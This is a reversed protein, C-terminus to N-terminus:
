IYQYGIIAPKAAQPPPGGRLAAPGRGGDYYWSICLYNHRIFTIRARAFVFSLAYEREHDGSISKVMSLLHRHNSQFVELSHWFILWEMKRVYNTEHIPWGAAYGLMQLNPYYAHGHSNGVPTNPCLRHEMCYWLLASAFTLTHPVSYKRSVHPTSIINKFSALPACRTIVANSQGLILSM